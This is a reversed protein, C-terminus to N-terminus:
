RKRSTVQPNYKVISKSYEESISIIKKKAEEINNFGAIKIKGRHNSTLLCISYVKIKDVFERNSRSFTSRSYNNILLCVNPYKDLKDKDITTIDTVNAKSPDRFSSSNMITIMLLLLGVAFLPLIIEM